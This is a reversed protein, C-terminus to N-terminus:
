PRHRMPSRSAALLKGTRIEFPTVTTSRSILWGLGGSPDFVLSVGGTQINAAPGTEQVRLVKHTSSSIVTFGENIAGGSRITPGVSLVVRRIQECVSARTRLLRGDTSSRLAQCPLSKSSVTRTSAGTTVPSTCIRATRRSRLARFVGLDPSLRV